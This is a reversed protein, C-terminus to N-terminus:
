NSRVLINDRRTVVDRSDSCFPIKKKSLFVGLHFVLSIDYKYKKMKKKGNQELLIVTCITVSTRDVSTYVCVYGVIM